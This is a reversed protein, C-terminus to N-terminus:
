FLAIIFIDDLNDIVGACNSRHLNFDISIASNAGILLYVLFIYLVTMALDVHGEGLQATGMKSVDTAQWLYWLDLPGIIALAVINYVDHVFIDEAVALQSAM